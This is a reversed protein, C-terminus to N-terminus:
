KRREHTKGQCCSAPRPLNGPKFPPPDIQRPSSGPQILGLIARRSADRQITIRHGNQFVLDPLMLLIAKGIPALRDGPLTDEVAQTIATSVAPNYSKAEMIQPM